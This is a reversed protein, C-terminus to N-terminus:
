KGKEKKVRSSHRETTNDPIETLMGRILIFPTKEGPLGDDFSPLGHRVRWRSIATDLYEFCAQRMVASGERLWRADRVFQVLTDPEPLKRVLRLLQTIEPAYEGSLLGERIERKWKRFHKMQESRERIKREAPSPVMPARQERAADRQMKKRRHVTAHEEAADTFPNTM